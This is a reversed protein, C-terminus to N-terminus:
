LKITNFHNLIKKNFIFIKNTTIGIDILLDHDHIDIIKKIPHFFSMGIKIIDKKCLNIFRDYFGKGYGVRYGRMDFIFLPIFIVDILSISVIHKYIPEYIGYRNVKLLTNKDFCCNVISLQNFNSYPVTIYKKQSLLFDIIIFTNIENNKQIPLFIHYYKKQFIKYSFFVKKMKSLIEHSKVILKEQSIRKRYSLYKKRLEKKNM